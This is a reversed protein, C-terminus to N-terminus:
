LNNYCEWVRLSLNSGIAGGLAFKYRDPDGRGWLLCTFLTCGSMRPAFPSPRMVDCMMDGRPLDRCVADIDEVSREDEAVYSTM